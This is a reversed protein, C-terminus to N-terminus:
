VAVLATIKNNLRYIEAKLDQLIQTQENTSQVLQQNTTVINYAVNQGSYGTQSAIGQVSSRVFGELNSFDVGSAYVGRGQDLLTNAANLLDPTVSLDGGQAKTLLSGFTNQAVQLKGMPTLSSSAGLAQGNFFSDFARTMDEFSGFGAAQAKLLGLAADKQKQLAKTYDELPLGLDSATQLLGSMNDDLAKISDALMKATDVSKITDEYSQGFAFANALGAPNRVGVKDLITKFTSDLGTISKQLDGFIANQFSANDYGFNRGNYRLGDRSGVTINASGSASGGYQQVTALVSAISNIIQDRYSANEASYKKGTQGGISQALTAFNITGGQAKDSPKKGGFLGGLASGLFSGIASGVFPVPIAAQGVLAGIGSSAANVFGNKNGLGLLSALTGGAFGGGINAFTGADSVFNGIRGATFQNVGGKMLLGTLGESLRSTISGGSLLSKGMNLLSFGSGLMSGGSGLVSAQAGSSLGLAGAGAGLVSVVIPRIAAQYTLDTLFNVFMSKIGDLMRKFISGNKDLSFANRWADQFSDDIEKALNTFTKGLPSDLEAQVKVKELEAQTNRIGRNLLEVQEATKAVGKLKELQAIEDNLKEEQTRSGNIATTLETQLKKQERLAENAAKMQAKSPGNDQKFGQSDKKAAEEVPNKLDMYRQTNADLRQSFDVSANRLLDYQSTTKFLDTKQFSTGFWDNSKEKFYNFVSLARNIQGEVLNIASTFSLGIFTTIADFAERLGFVAARLVDIGDHALDSRMVQALGTLSDKYAEMLGTSNGVEDGLDFIANQFRATEAAASHSANVAAEGFEDHFAKGMTKLNEITVEGAEVMKYFQAPTKDMAKAFIEIAGPLASGLQLKLEQMQVTGKGAMQELALFVSNAQTQDLKLARIAESTGSFIDKVDQMSLGARLASAAFGSFSGATDKFNLGLRESEDRVFKLANGADGFDGVSAAMRYRLAEAAMATDRISKITQVGFYLGILNQFTELYSNTKVISQNFKEQQVALQQSRLEAAKMANTAALQAVEARKTAAELKGQELAAKELAAAATLTAAEARKTAAEISKQGLAAKQMSASASLTAAEAKKMAAESVSVAANAKNIDAALLKEANSARIFAEEVANTSQKVQKSSQNVEDLSRKIVRAGETEPIIGVSIGVDTM